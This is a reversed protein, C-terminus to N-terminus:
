YAPFNIYSIDRDFILKIRYPYTSKWSSFPMALTKQKQICASQWYIWVFGSRIPEEPSKKLETLLKTFEDCVFNSTGNEFSHNKNHAARCADSWSLCFMKRISDILMVTQKGIKLFYCFLIQYCDTKLAIVAVKGLLQLM